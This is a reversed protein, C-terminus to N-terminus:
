GEQADPIYPTPTTWGPDVAAPQHLPDERLGTKNEGPIGMFLHQTPPNHGSVIMARREARAIQKEKGMRIATDAM